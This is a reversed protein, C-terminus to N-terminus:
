AASAAMHDLKELMELMLLSARYVVTRSELEGSQSLVSHVVAPMAVALSQKTVGLRLFRDILDSLERDGGPGLTVYAVLLEGLLPELWNLGDDELPLENQIGLAIHLESLM